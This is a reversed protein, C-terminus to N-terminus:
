SHCGREAGQNWFLIRLELDHVTIADKCIHLLAAQEHIIREKVKRESLETQLKKYLEAQQIAISLHIALQKLLEIEKTQWQRPQSCHHAVLLGWLHEGQLILVVLNAKVQFTRLLELHCPTLGASQVDTKATVLGLRFPEIYQEAFCPDQIATGRIAIWNLDVSEVEVTGTLDPQFRFILVRDTQLFQRVEDVTSQLITDIDLSQRIRLAIDCLLHKYDQQQWNKISSIESQITTMTSNFVEM